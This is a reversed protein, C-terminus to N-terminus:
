KKCYDIIGNIIEPTPYGKGEPGDKGYQMAFSFNDAMCEEPDIVYDTNKGFVEDFNDAEEPTYYIDSGDIPILATTGTDFFSDGKKEFHKTTVFDTFCDIDKGDINFTAYSNHHEVDPNSIHYVFVSPPIEYDDEVVTFSILKYMNKRFDPNCRTLCHFLEHWLISECMEADEKDGNLVRSLVQEGIYIQTGHTYAAAGTEEHMTTKIFIIEDLPPLDYGENKLEDEMDAMFREVLAKEEDTFDMVQKGAFDLYDTMMADKKQLKFELDNKSFGLYYDKNSFMLERGEDKSAFQFKLQPTYEDSKTETSQSAAGCGALFLVCIFVLILTISKKM